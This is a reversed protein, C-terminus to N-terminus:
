LTMALSQFIFSLYLVAGPPQLIFLLFPRLAPVSYGSQGWSWAGLHILRAM